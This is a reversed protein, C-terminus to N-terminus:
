LAACSPTSHSVCKGSDGVLLFKFLYDYGSSAPAMSSSAAGNFSGKGTSQALNYMLKTLTSSSFRCRCRCAVVVVVVLIMSKHASYQKLRPQLWNMYQAKWATTAEQSPSHPSCFRRWLHDDSSVEHLLQVLV